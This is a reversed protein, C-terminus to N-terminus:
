AARPLAAEVSNARSTQRDFKAHLEYDQKARAAKEALRDRKEKKEQRTRLLEEEDIDNDGDRDIRALSAPAGILGPWLWLPAM